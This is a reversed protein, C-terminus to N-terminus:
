RACSLLFFIWFVGFLIGRFDYLLTVYISIPAHSYQIYVQNDNTNGSIWKRRTHTGSISCFIRDSKEVRAKCCFLLCSFWCFWVFKEFKCLFNLHATKTRVIIKKIDFDLNLFFNWSHDSFIWSLQSFSPSERDSLHFVFWGISLSVPKFEWQLRM